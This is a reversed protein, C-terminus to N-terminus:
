ERPIHDKNAEAWQEFTQASPNLSRTVDLPRSACCQEEFEEKFQFMNAVDDAGPFGCSRYVEPTVPTYRVERRTWTRPSRGQRTQAPM